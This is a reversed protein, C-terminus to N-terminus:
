PTLTLVRPDGGAALSDSVRRASIVLALFGLGRRRPRYRPKAPAHVGPQQRAADTPHDRLHGPRHVRTNTLPWSSGNSRLCPRDRDKELAKMVIWDLEGRLVQGLGRGDVGRRESVTSCAQADLTSLRRSPTTPEEERIIRRLEDLGVKKLTESEFPTTGTLLEYLM